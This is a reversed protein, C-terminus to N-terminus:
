QNTEKTLGKLLWDSWRPWLSEWDLPQPLTTAAARNEPLLLEEVKTAWDAASYTPRLIFYSPETWWGVPEVLSIPPVFEASGAYRGHVTPLGCAVAQVNGYEYGGGAGIGLRVDCASYAWAIDEDSLRGTTLLVRQEMGFERALAPINWYSPHSLQATHGWFYVNWGRRLLEQCTQFALAWDKRVNNADLASLIIQVSTLPAAREGQTVRSIFTQRALARDRPFFISAAFPAGPGLGHPIHEVAAAQGDMGVPGWKQRTARIAEAGHRTCALVRDFGDLIRAQQWGLDGDPLHGDIPPYAWRAFPRSLLFARVPHDAPLVEPHALWSCWSLNWIATLIGKRPLGAREAVDEASDSQLGDGYRGAFNAWLAPLELPCMQDLRSLSWNPFPLTSDTAMTGGVGAVGVRFRGALSSTPDTVAHHLCFALERGTRALGSHGTASDALILFPVPAM